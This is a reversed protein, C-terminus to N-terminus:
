RHGEGYRRRRRLRASGSTAPTTASCRRVPSQADDRWYDAQRHVIMPPRTWNPIVDPRIHGVVAGETKGSPLLTRLVFWGNQARNRGDYLSLSAAESSIRIRPSSRGPRAGRRKWYGAAAAARFREGRGMGAAMAAEESRRGSPTSEANPGSSQTPVRRVPQRGAFLEQRYLRFHLFELNFGARGARKEPLAKDLNVSVRVGGPEAAVELRYDM